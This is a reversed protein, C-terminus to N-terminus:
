FIFLLVMVTCISRWNFPSFGLYFALQPGTSLGEAFPDVREPSFIIMKM